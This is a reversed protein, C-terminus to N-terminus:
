MPLNEHEAMAREAASCAGDIDGQAALVMARTRAGVALMWPRALRSGNGELRAVLPEAEAVRELAILAEVGDPIFAALFIETAEPTTGLGTVLPQLTTLADRYRGLSVELFGLTSLQQVALINAGCREGTELAAAVDTRADDVRGQHAASMA